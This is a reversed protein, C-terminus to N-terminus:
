IIVKIAVGLVQPPTRKQPKLFLFTFADFRGALMTKFLSSDSTILAKLKTGVLWMVIMLMFMIMFMFM